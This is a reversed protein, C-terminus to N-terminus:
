GGALAHPTAWLVQPLVLLLTWRVARVAMM